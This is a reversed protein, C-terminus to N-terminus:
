GWAATARGIRFCRLSLRCYQHLGDIRLGKGREQDSGNRGAVDLLSGRNENRTSREKPAKMIRKEGQAGSYNEM